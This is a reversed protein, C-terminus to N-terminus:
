VIGFFYGQETSSFYWTECPDSIQKKANTYDIIVSTSDSLNNGPANNWGGNYIYYGNQNTDSADEIHIITIYKEDFDLPQDQINLEVRYETVQTPTVSLDITIEVSDDSQGADICNLNIKYIDPIITGPLLNNISCKSKNDTTGIDVVETTIGFYNVDEGASNTQSVISWVIDLGRNINNVNAGNVAAAETMLVDEITKDSVTYNASGSGPFPATM